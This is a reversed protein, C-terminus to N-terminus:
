FSVKIPVMRKELSRWEGDFHYNLRNKPDITLEYIDVVDPTSVTHAWGLQSLQPCLASVNALFPVYLLEFYRKITALLHYLVLQFYQELLTGVKMATYIHKMGSIFPFMSLFHQM